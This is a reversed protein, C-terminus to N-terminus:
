FYMSLTRKLGDGSKNYIDKILSILERYDKHEYDFPDVELLLTSIINNIYICDVMNNSIFALIKIADSSDLLNHRNNTRILKEIYQFKLYQDKIHSPDSIFYNIMKDKLENTLFDEPGESAHYVALLFVFDLNKTGKYLSILKNILDDESLRRVIDKREFIILILPADDYILDNYVLKEKYNIM